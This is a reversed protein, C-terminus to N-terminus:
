KIGYLSITTGLGLTQSNNLFIKLSTVASTSKWIGVNRAMGYPNSSTNGIGFYSTKYKNTEAYDAITLDLTGRKTTSGAINGFAVGSIAFGELGPGLDLSAGYEDTGKTAGSFAYAEQKIYNTSTTDSNIQVSGYLNGYGTDSAKGQVILRISNYGSPISTISYSIVASATLEAYLIKTYYSLSASPGTGWSLGSTATSQSTLVQGNSGVPIRSNSTGDHALIDGKTTLTTLGPTSVQQSFSISM